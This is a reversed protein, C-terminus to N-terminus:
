PKERLSEWLLQVKRAIRVGLLNEHLDGAPGKEVFEGATSFLVIESHCAQFKAIDCWFPLRAEFHFAFCILM